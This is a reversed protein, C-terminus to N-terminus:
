EVHGPPPPPPPKTEAAHPATAPLPLSSPPPLAGGAPLQAAMTAGTDDAKHAPAVLTVVCGTGRRHIVTPLGTKARNRDATGDRGALANVTGGGSGSRYRSRNGPGGDTWSPVSMKKVSSACLGLASHQTGLSHRAGAGPHRGGGGGGGGAPWGHRPM